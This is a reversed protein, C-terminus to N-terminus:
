GIESEDKGILISAVFDNIAVMQRGVYVIISDTFPTEDTLVYAESFLRLDDDKHGKISATKPILYVSMYVDESEPLFSLMPTSLPGSLDRLSFSPQKLLYMVLREKAEM